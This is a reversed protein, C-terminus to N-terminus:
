KKDLYEYEKLARDITKNIRKQLGGLSLYMDDCVKRMQQGDVYVCIIAKRIDNKMLGLIEDLYEKKAVLRSRKLEYSDILERLYYENEKNPPSHIPIKSADISHVGSLKYYCDEINDTLSIIKDSYYKYNRLEYKFATVDISQAM